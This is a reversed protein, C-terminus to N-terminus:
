CGPRGLGAVLPRLLVQRRGGTGRRASRRWRAVLDQDLPVLGGRQARDEAAGAHQGPIRDGRRAAQGLVGLFEELLVPDAGVALPGEGHDLGLVLQRGDAHGDAGAPGPGPRDGRGRARADRQHGLEDAQGVEGLDRDDDDVDLAHPRAGAQRGPGALPVDELEVQEPWPSQRCM